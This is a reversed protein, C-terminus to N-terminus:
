YIMTMAAHVENLGSNAMENARTNGDPHMRQICGPDTVIVGSSVMWNPRPRHAAAMGAM